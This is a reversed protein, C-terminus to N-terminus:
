IAKQMLDRSKKKGTGKQTLVATTTPLHGKARQFAWHASFSPYLKSLCNKFVKSTYFITNEKDEYYLESMFYITSDVM